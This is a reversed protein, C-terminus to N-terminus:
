EPCGIPQAALVVDDIWVARAEDPLYAEWGLYVESFSPATWPAAPAEPNSCGDGTGQVSLGPVVLGDVTLQMADNPGDFKWEFCAWRGVPVLSTQAHAWCSTWPAAPPDDYYEPTDYFAALNDGLFTGTAEDYVPQDFGYRYISSYTQGPVRGKGSVLAISGSFTPVSEIFLMARGYLVNGEPPLVSADDFALAVARFADEMTSPATTVKVARSGSHAKESAVVVSGGVEVIRWKGGPADGAAFSEFDDCLIAGDCLAPFERESPTCAAAGLAIALLIATSGGHTHM